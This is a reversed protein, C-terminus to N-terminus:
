PMLSPDIEPFVLDREEVETPDEGCNYCVSVEYIKYQERDELKEFLNFEFERARELHSFYESVPEGEKDVVIYATGYHNKELNVSM